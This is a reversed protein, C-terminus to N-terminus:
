LAHSLGGCCSSDAEGRRRGMARRYKKGVTKVSYGVEEALDVLPVGGLIHWVVLRRAREDLTALLKRSTERAVTEREADAGTEQLSLNLEVAPHRTRARILDLLRNFYATRVYGRVQLIRPGKQILALLTAGFADEADERSVRYHKIGRYILETRFTGLLASWDPPQRRSSKPVGEEGAVAAAEAATPPRSEPVADM